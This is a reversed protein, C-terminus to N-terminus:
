GGYVVGNIICKGNNIIALYDSFNGDPLVYGFNFGQLWKNPRAHTYGPDKRCLCPVAMGTKGVKDDYPTNKAYLQATHWHGFRINREWNIVSAKAIHEGGSLQDGHVFTLKGLDYYGGQPILQWRDGLQLLSTLDLIGELGPIADVTDQLWAEHNGAIYILKATTTSQLPLLLAERAEKADALIRLGETRGPKGHNHHSVAGCDLIDGGLIVTHPNFDRIFSLAVSIAKPDHLPIKHGNKREYGIHTDFLAVFRKPEPM